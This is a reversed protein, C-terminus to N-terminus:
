GPPLFTIGSDGEVPALHLNPGYAIEDPIGGPFAKCVTRENVEVGESRVGIYNQCRRKRCNSEALM